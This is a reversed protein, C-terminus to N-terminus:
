YEPAWAKDGQQYAFDGDYRGPISVYRLVQTAGVESTFFGFLTVQKMLTFYHPLSTNEVVAWASQGATEGRNYANAQRDIDSLLAHRNESDQSVFSDGLQSLSLRDIEALGSIFLSRENKDYCDHIFRLTFAPTGADIAGPTETRPMITDCIAEWLLYDAKSFGTKELPTAAPLEIYALADAGIFSAGTAAAIMKLLERRHM